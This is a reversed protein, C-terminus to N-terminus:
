EPAAEPVERSVARRSGQRDKLSKQRKAGVPFRKTEGCAKCKIVLVDAWPKRGGRSKNELSTTSTVGPELLVECGKCISHKMEPTLRILTKRSLSRLQSVYCQALGATTKLDALHEHSTVQFKIVSKILPKAQVVVGSKELVHESQVEEVKPKVNSDNSITALYSAAQHLFSIRSHVHKQALGKARDRM